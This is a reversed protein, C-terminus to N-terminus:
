QYCKAISITVLIGFHNEVPPLPPSHSLFVIKPGSPWQALWEVDHSSFLITLPWPAMEEPYLHLLGHLTEFGAFSLIQLLELKRM